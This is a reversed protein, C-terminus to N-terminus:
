FMFACFTTYLVGNTDLRFKESSPRVTRSQLLSINSFIWFFVPSDDGKQKM